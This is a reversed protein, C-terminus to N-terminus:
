QEREKQQERLEEKMKEILKIQAILENHIFGQFRLGSPPFPIKGSFFEKYLRQEERIEDQLLKFNEDREQKLRELNEELVKDRAAGTYPRSSVVVAKLLERENPLTGDCGFELCFKIDKILEETIIYEKQAAPTM